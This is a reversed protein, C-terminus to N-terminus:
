KMCVEKKLLLLSEEYSIDNFYRYLCKHFLDFYDYSFFTRFVLEDDQLQISHKNEAILDRIFTIDKLQTYLTNIKININNEDYESMGLAQLLQLQYLLQKLGIEGADEEILKYTCIFDIDLDCM